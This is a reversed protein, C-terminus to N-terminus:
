NLVGKDNHYNYAVVNNIKNQIEKQGKEHDEDTIEDYQNLGMLNVKTKIEGTIKNKFKKQRIEYKVNKYADIHARIVKLQDKQLENLELDGIFDIFKEYDEKSTSWYLNYYTIYGKDDEYVVNVAWYTSKKPKNWLNTNPNLTQSIFRDGKKKVSEVWYRIQTKKFGYPYNDIVIPNKETPQPKIIKM